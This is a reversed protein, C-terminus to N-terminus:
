FSELISAFEESANGRNKMFKIVFDDANRILDNQFKKDFLIKKIDNELNCNDLVTFVADSKIHNFEPVKEDFYVNMTPKGLIMSELLMTSTGNIEPSIVMVIDAQNVTNIVSTWLYIPITSDLERILLKIEENHKLQVPHLKVIIKVNDFKEMISFINRIIKRFRFKLDTCSLGNVDSIPNPALLLTIEENNRNKQRSLFYNDHRPSGTVIIKKADIGYENILFEKKMEGWVAIKDKFNVYDSLEDYRKTKKIREIFGHELLITPIRKKNYELFSKETEGVENLSVICKVDCKEFIKKISFIMTIYYSLRESYTQQLVEKVVDWFSIEEIMFINNFIESNEFLKNIKELYKETLLAIKEKDKKELYKDIKLIKCNTKRITNLSDRSWIASRRQNILIVNGDFKMMNEFLKSFLQPNFELFIVSKKKSDNLDFWFGYFWGMTSELIKKIKLYTGRSINFTFPIKGINYKVTIRDWFLKKNSNNQFIEIKINSNEIISEVIKSLVNTTIIKEPQEKEIVRKIITLNVLNPMLFSGFEHSDLIKLLNVGEIKYDDSKIKSHWNRFEIMKDLIQLREEQNLIEDAKEHEINKYELTEHIDLDFSFKKVKKDEIIKSPLVDFDSNDGILIIKSTM